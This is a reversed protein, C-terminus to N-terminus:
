DLGIYPGYLIQPFGRPMPNARQGVDVVDGTAGKGAGEGGSRKRMPWLNDPSSLIVWSLGRCDM